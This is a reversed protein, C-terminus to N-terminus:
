KVAGRHKRYTDVARFYDSDEDIEIFDLGHLSDDSFFFNGSGVDIYKLGNLSDDSFFYDEGNLNIFHRSQLSDDSFYFHCDSDKYLSDAIIYAGVSGISHLSDDSIVMRRLQPISISDLGSSQIIIIDGDNEDYTVRVFDGDTYAMINGDFLSDIMVDEGSIWVHVSDKGVLVTDVMTSKDSVMVWGPVSVEADPEESADPYAPAAPEDETIRADPYRPATPEDPLPDDQRDPADPNALLASSLMLVAILSGMLFFSKQASMTPRRSNLLHQIRPLLQTARHSLAAEAGYFSSSTSARTLFAAYPVPSPHTRIVRADCAQEALLSVRKTLLWILLQPWCVVKLIELALKTLTDRRRYHALEHELAFRLEERSDPSTMEEPILVVPRFWGALMPTPALATLRVRLRSPAGVLDLQALIFDDTIAHSERIVNKVRAIGIALRTGLVLVGIGYALIALLPILTIWAIEPVAIDPQISAISGRFVVPDVQVVQTSEMRSVYFVPDTQIPPVVKPLLNRVPATLQGIAPLLPAAILSTVLYRHQEAPQIRGQLLRDAVVIAFLFASSQLLFVWLWQFAQEVQISEALAFLETM